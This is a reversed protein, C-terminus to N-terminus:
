KSMMNIKRLPESNRNQLENHLMITINDNRIAKKDYLMGASSLAYRTVSDCWQGQTGEGSRGGKKKLPFGPLSALKILLYKAM